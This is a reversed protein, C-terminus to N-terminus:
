CGSAAATEICDAAGTMENGVSNSLLNASAIVAAAVFALLLAYELTSIGSENSWLKAIFTKARDM